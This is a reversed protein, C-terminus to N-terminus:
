KRSTHAKTTERASANRKARRMKRGRRVAVGGVHTGNPVPKEPQAGGRRPAAGREAREGGGPSGGKGGRGKGGAATRKPPTPAVDVAGADAAAIAAEKKKRLHEQLKKRRDAKSLQERQEQRAAIACPADTARATRLVTALLVLHHQRGQAHMRAHTRAHLFYRCRIVAAALSSSSCCPQM